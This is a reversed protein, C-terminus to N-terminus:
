YAGRASIIAPITLLILYLDWTFSRHRIYYIDFRIRQTYSTNNRGSVQWPGTLGPRITLFRAAYPGLENKLENETVPRPGVVSLDGKLVNWFQPLEDLSTKRLFKGVWTIRPDRKLKYHTKWEEKLKPDSNLIQQLRQEADPHMTRFKYCVFRCGGRGVREHGFIIAGRSTVKVLVALLLFLPSGLIMMTLSFLLDFIRKIPIHRVPYETKRTFSLTDTYNM